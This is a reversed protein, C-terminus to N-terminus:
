KRFLDHLNGLKADFVQGASEDVQVTVGVRRTDLLPAFHAKTATALADGVRKQVTASRGAAMRLNVWVFGFDGSGDAVAHHASPYAFVRTGGRPFVPAGAEDREAILTDALTRCLADVRGDAELNGTYLVVIHPM